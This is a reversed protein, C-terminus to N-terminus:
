CLALEEAFPRPLQLNETRARTAAHMECYAWRATSTGVFLFLAPDECRDAECRVATGDLPKIQKSQQV